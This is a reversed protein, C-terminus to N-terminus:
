RDWKVLETQCCVEARISRCVWSQCSVKFTYMLSSRQEKKVTVNVGGAKIMVTAPVSMRLTGPRNRAGSDGGGDM